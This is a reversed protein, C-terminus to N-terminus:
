ECFRLAAKRQRGALTGKKSTVLFDHHWTLHQRCQKSITKLSVRLYENEFSLEKKLIALNAIPPIYGKELVLIANILGALGSASELHGINSKVSGVYLPIDRDTGFSNIISKVEASDGAITGTGHAEVYGVERPDLRARSYVSRILSQQANQSPLTIGSTKGDQNVGTERM